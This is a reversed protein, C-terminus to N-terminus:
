RQSVKPVVATQVASYASITPAGMEIKRAPNINRIICLAGSNKRFASVQLERQM